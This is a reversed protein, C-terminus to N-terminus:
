LGLQDIQGIIAEIKGKIADREGEYRKVEEDVEADAELGDPLDEVLQGRREEFGPLEPVAEGALADGLPLDAQRQAEVVPMGPPREDGLVDVEDFFVDDPRESGGQGNM